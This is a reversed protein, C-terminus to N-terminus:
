ISRTTELLSPMPMAINLAHTANLTFVVNQPESFNFLRCALERCEYVKDAAKMAAGYAGRGPSAMTEMANVMARKVATPKLHSTAASDLYIM